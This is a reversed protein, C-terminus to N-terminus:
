REALISSLTILNLNFVFWTVKFSFFMLQCVSMRAAEFTPLFIFIPDVPTCYYLGGDILSLM